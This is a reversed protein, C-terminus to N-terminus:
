SERSICQVPSPSFQVGTGNLETAAIRVPGLVEALVYIPCYKSFNCGFIDSITQKSMTYCRLRVSPLSFLM